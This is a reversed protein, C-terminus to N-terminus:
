VRDWPDSVTLELNAEKAAERAMHEDWQRDFEAMEGDIADKILPGWKLRMKRLSGIVTHEDVFPYPTMWMLTERAEDSSNPWLVDFVNERNMDATPPPMWLGHRAHMGAAMAQWFWEWFKSWRSM